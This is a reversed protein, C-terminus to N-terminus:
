LTQVDYFIKFYYLVIYFNFLIIEIIFKGWDISYSKSFINEFKENVLWNFRSNLIYFMLSTFLGFLGYIILITQISVYRIDILWKIKTWNYSRIVEILLYIPIYFLSVLNLSKISELFLLLKM